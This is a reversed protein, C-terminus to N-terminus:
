DEQIVQERLVKYDKGRWRISAPGFGHFIRVKATKNLNEGDASHVAFLAGKDYDQGNWRLAYFAAFHPGEVVFGWRPLVVDGGLTTSVEAEVEGFNVTVKTANEGRGYWAQRVAHGGGVFELRSLRQYATARHLPGLVEHTNKIFVDWPHMGEAWGNDCRTYCAM